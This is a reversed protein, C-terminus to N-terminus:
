LAEAHRGLARGFGSRAAFALAGCQRERQRQLRVQQQEVLGGVMEVDVADGREFLQQDFPRGDM